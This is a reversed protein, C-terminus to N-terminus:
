RGGAHRRHRLTFVVQLGPPKKLDGRRVVQQIRYFKSYFFLSIFIIIIIFNRLSFTKNGFPKFQDCCQTLQITGQGQYCSWFDKRFNVWDLSRRRRKQLLSNSDMVVPLSTCTGKKQMCMSHQKLTEQIQSVSTKTISYFIKGYTFNECSSLDLAVKWLLVSWNVSWPFSTMTACNTEKKRASAIRRSVEISISTMFVKLTVIFKATSGSALM